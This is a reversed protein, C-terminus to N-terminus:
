EPRWMLWVGMGYHRFTSHYSKTFSTLDKEYNMRLGLMLSENLGYGISANVHSGIVFDNLSNLAEFNVERRDESLYGGFTQYTYNLNLGARVSAYVNGFSHHLGVFLPAQIRKIESRFKQVNFAEFERAVTRKTIDRQILLAPVGNSNFNGNVVRYTTDYVTENSMTRGLVEYSMSETFSSYRVGMGYLWNKKHKITNIGFQFNSNVKEHNSRHKQYTHSLDKISKESNISRNLEIEYVISKSRKLPLYTMEKKLPSAMGHQQDIRPLAEIEFLIQSNTFLQYERGQDVLETSLMLNQRKLTLQNSHPQQRTDKVNVLLSNTSELNIDNIHVQNLPKQQADKARKIELNAALNSEINNYQVTENSYANMAMKYQNKDMEINQSIAQNDSKLTMSIFAILLILLGNLNFYWPSPRSTPPLQQEVKQWLKEDYPYSTNLGEKFLEDIEEFNKM